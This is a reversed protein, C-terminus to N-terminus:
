SPADGPQVRDAAVLYHPWYRPRAPLLPLTRRTALQIARFTVRERQRWPLGYAERVPAPLVGAALVAPLPRAPQAVLPPDPTLIQAALRTATPGVALVDRVRDDVYRELAAYDGPLAAAPVGFQHALRCMDRYYADREAAPVPRAFGETVTVSTWVLTAFVWLALDRDAARYPTGAPLSGTAVPLTGQVVRHRRAVHRAAGRVQASDGFTVTLVADLTGRLRALPQAVFDSHAAVGAAVLPHAVQLLLAAPGSALLVRERGIRWAASGPGFLGPDGDQGPEPAPPFFTSLPQV